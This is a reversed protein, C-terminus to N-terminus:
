PQMEELYKPIKMIDQIHHRSVERIIDYLNVRSKTFERNRKVKVILSDVYLQTVEPSIM